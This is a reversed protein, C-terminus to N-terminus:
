TTSENVERIIPWDYTEGIDDPRALAKPDIHTLKPNFSMHLRELNELGALAGAGVSRLSKMNCMHLEQLKRLRPFGRSYHINILIM